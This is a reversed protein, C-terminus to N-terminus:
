KTLDGSSEALIKTQERRSEVPVSVHLDSMVLTDCALRYGEDIEKKSFHKTHAEKPKPVEGGTIIVKCKGCEGEGGCMTELPIGAKKVADLITSGTDVTVDKKVGYSFYVKVEENDAM